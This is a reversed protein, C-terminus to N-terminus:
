DFLQGWYRGWSGGVYYGIGVRSFGCNLMNANHGPSSKWSSMVDAADQQGAAINEGSAGTGCLAARKWPDGVVSEPADHAFFGHAAMHHCHGEIAAELKDDYSLPGCGNAQRHQNLLDFVQMIVAKEQTSPVCCVPIIGGSEKGTGGPDTKTEHHGTPPACKHAVGGGGCVEGGSCTGCSLTKGCGDQLSDCEYGAAACTTPTCSCQNATCVDNALPCKGCDTQGGCADDISGCQAGAASCTTKTCGCQNATGAGGCTQPAQCTGCEVTGSCGDSLTGCTANLQGCDKPECTDSGCRNAGAGGCTLGEACGGCDIASGCGDDIQGCEAGLEACSRPICGDPLEGGGSGGM